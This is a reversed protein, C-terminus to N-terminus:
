ELILPTISLLTYILDIKNFVKVLTSNESCFSSMLLFILSEIVIADHSIESPVNKFGLLQSYSTNAHQWPLLFLVNNMFNFMEM